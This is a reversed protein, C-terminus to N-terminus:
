QCRAGSWSCTDGPVFVFRVQAWTTYANTRLRGTGLPPGSPDAPDVLVVSSDAASFSGTFTILTYPITPRQVVGAVSAGRLGFGASFTFYDCMGEVGCFTTVADAGAGQEQAIFVGSGGTLAFSGRLVGGSLAGGLTWGAGKWGAGSLALEHASTDYTGTLYVVQYGSSLRVTGSAPVTASAAHAGFLPVASAAAVTIEITGIGETGMVSGKFQTSPGFPRTTKSSCGAILLVSLVLMVLMVPCCRTAFRM